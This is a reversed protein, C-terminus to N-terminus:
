PQNKGASRNQGKEVKMAGKNIKHCTVTELTWPLSAPNGPRRTGSKELNKHKPENHNFIIDVSGSDNLGNSPLRLYPSPYSTKFSFNVSYSPMLLKKDM